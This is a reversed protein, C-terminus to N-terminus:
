GAIGLIAELIQRGAERLLAAPRFVSPVSTNKNDPISPM